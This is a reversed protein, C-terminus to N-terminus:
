GLISPGSVTMGDAEPDGREVTASEKEMERQVEEWDAQAKQLREWEPSRLLM